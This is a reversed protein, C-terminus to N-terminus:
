KKLYVLREQNEADAGERAARERPEAACLLYKIRPVIREACQEWFLIDRALTAPALL